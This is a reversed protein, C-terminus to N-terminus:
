KLLRYGKSECWVLFRRELLNELKRVTEAALKRAKGDQLFKDIAESVTPVGPKVVGIEGSAEWGQVLDNAAQWSRLDLSKRVYEGRLSVPGLHSM